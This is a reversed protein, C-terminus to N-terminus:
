TGVVVLLAAAAAAAALAVGPSTSDVLAGAAATGVALSTNFAANVWATAESEGTTAVRDAVLYSAVIAPAVTLGALGLVVVFPVFSRSTAAATAVLATAALTLVSTQTRASGPWARSGFLLGGALSGAALASSPVGAYPRGATAVAAAIAAVEVAGLLLGLSTVPVLGRVFEPQRWVAVVPGALPDARSSTSTRALGAVRVAMVPAAVGLVGLAALVTVPAGMRVVLAAALVPGLVYAADETVTDLSYARRVLQEDGVLRRWAARMVPGVPPPCSGALLALAVVLAFPGTGYAVLATTSAVLAVTLVFIGPVAGARDVLRARAPGLVGAALGYAGVAAGAELYSSRRQSLFLLLAVPLVGYVLRAVSACLLLVAAGRLRLLAVYGGPVASM